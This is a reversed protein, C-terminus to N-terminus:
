NDVFNILRFLVLPLSEVFELDETGGIVKFMKFIDYKCLFNVSCIATFHTSFYKRQLLRYETYILNSIILNSLTQDFM